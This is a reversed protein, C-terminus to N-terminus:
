KGDLGEGKGAIYIDQSPFGGTIVDPIEPLDTAKLQTVDTYIPVDPWNKRLVKHCQEDIECFGITKFAGTLELGVSFGGIGAFLELTKLSEM